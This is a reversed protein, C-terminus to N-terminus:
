LEKEWSKGMIEWSKGMNFGINGMIKRHKGINGM